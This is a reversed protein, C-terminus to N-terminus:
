KKSEGKQQYKSMIQMAGDYLNRRLNEPALVEVIESYQLSWFYVAEVNAKVQIILSDEQEELVRYKKGFWDIFEGIKKKKIKLRIRDSKGSYMYIHEQMYDDLRFNHNQYKEIEHIEMRKDELITVEQMRDIRRAEIDDRGAYCLLYFRAKESVIYYPDVIYTKGSELEGKENYLCYVIKIKKRKVIAQSILSMITGVTENETRHGGRLFYSGSIQMRKEPEALNKIKEILVQIDKESIAKISMVSNVLIAIESDTFIRKLSIGRKGEIYGYKRLEAIYQSLTNRSIEIGYDQQLHQM